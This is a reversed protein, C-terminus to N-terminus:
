GLWVELKSLAEAQEASSRQLPHLEAIRAVDGRLLKSQATDAIGSRYFFGGNDKRTFVPKSWGSSEISADNSAYNMISNYDYERSSKTHQWHRPCM